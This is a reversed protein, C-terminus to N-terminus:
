ESTEDEGTYIQYFIFKNERHYGGSISCEPDTAYRLYEKLSLLIEISFIM